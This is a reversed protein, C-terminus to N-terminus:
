FKQGTNLPSQPTTKNDRLAKITLLENIKKGNVVPYLSLAMENGGVYPMTYSFSLVGRAKAKVMGPDAFQLGQLSSKGSFALKIDKDTDNAYHLEMVKTEGPRLYGFAMVKLRLHLGAGFDYPYEDEVPHTKPTIVGQVWIRSYQQKNYSYVVIEKSFFGSKYDPNFTITLKGKGGPKVPDKSLVRGVCGCGSYIGDIVVPLKGQNYFVFDHTVKGKAEEITGFDHVREEFRVSGSLEQAKLTFGTCHLVLFCVIVNLRSILM